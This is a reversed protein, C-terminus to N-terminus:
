IGIESLFKETEKMEAASTANNARLETASKKIGGCFIIRFWRRVQMVPMLWKHRQLIPYYHKIQSYPLFIRSIAYKGKGGSKTQKLLVKNEVNGYVGGFIIYNQMKLSVDTHDGGEMWVDSLKRAANAFALLKEKELAKNRKESDGGIVHDMIWLDIFPRIGCGGNIFHKAMHSIHYFYFVEDSMKFTYGGECEPASSEWVENLAAYTECRPENLDFHLELHVNAKSFLSVDHTGREREEYDLEETLAAIAADLDSPHVLVDIDCSTRLWPLPYYKRLVSGKLPIHCIKREGLIRMIEQLEYDLRKYRLVATLAENQLYKKLDEVEPVCKNKDLAHALVIAVDHKKAIVFMNKVSDYTIADRESESIPEGTIASRLLSFLIMENKEDM